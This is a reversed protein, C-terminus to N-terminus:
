FVLKLLQWFAKLINYPLLKNKRYVVFGPYNNISSCKKLIYSLEILLLM